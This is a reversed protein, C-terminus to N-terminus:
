KGLTTDKNEKNSISEIIVSSEVSLGVTAHVAPSCKETAGQYLDNVQINESYFKIQRISKKGNKVPYQKPKSVVNSPLLETIKPARFGGSHDVSSAKNVTVKRKTMVQGNPDKGVSSIVAFVIDGPQGPLCLSLQLAVKIVRMLFM